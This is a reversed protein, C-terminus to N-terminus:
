INTYLLWSYSGSVGAQKRSPHMVIPNVVEHTELFVSVQLISLVWGGATLGKILDLNKIHHDFGLGLPVLFVLIFLVRFKQLGRFTATFPLPWNQDIRLYAILCDPLWSYQCFLLLSLLLYISLLFSLLLLPTCNKQPYGWLFTM